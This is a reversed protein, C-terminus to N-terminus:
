KYTQGKLGILVKEKAEKGALYEVIQLAFSISYMMSRGTIINGDQEIENGTFIGAIGRDFGVFCTFKKNDLYGYKGLVSPAACIACILKDHLVFYDLYAKLFECAHLNRTGRGGGPLIITEFEDLNKIKKLLVNAQVKIGFSSEVELSNSISATIIEIGARTLVDRTTLAETDEFGDALIMLGKMCKGRSM